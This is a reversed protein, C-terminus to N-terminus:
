CSTFPQSRCIDMFDSIAQSEIMSQQEKNLSDPLSPKPPITVIFCGTLESMDEFQWGNHLSPFDTSDSEADADLGLQKSLSARIQADSPSDVGEVVSTVSEIDCTTPFQPNNVIYQPCPRLSEVIKESEQAQTTASITGGQEPSGHTFTVSDGKKIVFRVKTQYAPIQPFFGFKALYYEPFKIIYGLEKDNDWNKWTYAIMRGLASHWASIALTNDLPTPSDESAVDSNFGYRAGLKHTKQESM